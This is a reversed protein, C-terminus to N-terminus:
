GARIIKRPKESLPVFVLGLDPPVSFFGQSPPDRKRKEVRPKSPAPPCVSPREEKEDLRRPTMCPDEREEKEPFANATPDPQQLDVAGEGLKSTRM